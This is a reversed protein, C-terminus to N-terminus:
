PLRRLTYGQAELARVLGEPGVLHAAGVAILPRAPADLLPLLADVWRRNRGTLLAERLALDALIGERTSQEIAQADGALWARQLREPDKRTRESEAVVTALMVRQQEEPLADFISLQGRLGELERVPRGSFEALLARDVGNAPDGTADSRALAIAAAWTETAGFSAADVDSRQLLAALVPHLHPPLRDRLPPLGPSTALEKFTAAHNARGGLGAIEVVLLDARQVADAIGATRWEIGSPLAHITGLMWGEVTGDASAIEYFLPNPPPADAAGKGPANSCGALTLMMLAAIIVAVLTGARRLLAAGVMHPMTPRAPTM